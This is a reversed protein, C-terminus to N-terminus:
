RATGGKARVTTSCAQERGLVIKSGLVKLILPSRGDNKVVRCRTGEYLGMSSLRRKLEPGCEICSIEVSSGEKADSLRQSLRVGTIRNGHPCREPHDLFANLRRISEDSFVHELGHAEGHAADPGYGLVRELFVEVVRHKFIIRKAEEMGRGTLHIKSYPTTRVLGSRKLKRLMISVTAKTVGLRQAIDVSRIGASTDDQEEYLTYMAAMYDEISTREM